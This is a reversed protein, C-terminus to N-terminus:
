EEEKEQEEKLENSDDKKENEEKDGKEELEELALKDPSNDVNVTYTGSAFKKGCKPCKWIGSSLRKVGKKDCFPCQQKKNKKEEVARARERVKRGYGAGLRGMSKVKKTRAM